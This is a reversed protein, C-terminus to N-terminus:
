KNEEKLPKLQAVNLSDKMSKSCNKKALLSSLTPLVHMVYTTYPINDVNVRCPNKLDLGHVSYLIKKYAPTLNNIAWNIDEESYDSLTVYVSEIKKMKKCEQKMVLDIRKIYDITSHLSTLVDEASIGHKIAVDKISMSNIVDMIIDKERSDIVDFSDWILVTKRIQENLTAGQYIEGFLYRFGEYEYSYLSNFIRNVQETIKLVMEDDKKEKLIRQKEPSLAMIIERLREKRMSPNVEGFNFVKM